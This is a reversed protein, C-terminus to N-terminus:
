GHCSLGTSWLKAEVESLSSSFASMRPRVAAFSNLRSVYRQSSAGPVRLHPTAVEGCAKARSINIFHDINVVLATLVAIHYNM